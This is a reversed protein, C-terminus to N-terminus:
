RAAKRANAVIADIVIPFAGDPLDHGMGEVMVLTSGPVAKATLEGGTPHVLPDVTGHIVVTPVTVLGLAETRDAAKGIAMAQNARGDPYHGRDFCVAARARVADDDIAFGTSGIIHATEVAREIVEARETAQPRVAWELVHPPPPPLGPGSTTSMISCLSRVREPFEIAMQQVIGGGMSAGVIHASAVGLHDLLAMGDAAMDSVSYETGLPFHTSKGVDRNDYYIVFLGAAAIQELFGIPWYALQAGHGMVMLMPDGDPSGMTEYEITIGNAQVATMLADPYGIM